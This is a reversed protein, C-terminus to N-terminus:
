QQYKDTVAKVAAQIETVQNKQDDTLRTWPLAGILADAIDSQLDLFGDLISGAGSVISNGIPLPLNNNELMDAYGELLGLGFQPVPTALATSAFIAAILTFRM